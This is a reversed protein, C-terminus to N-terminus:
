AGVGTSEATRSKQGGVLQLSHFVSEVLQLATDIGTRESRDFVILVFGGCQFTSQQLDGSVLKSALEAGAAGAVVLDGRQDAHPETAVAADDGFHQEAKGCCQGFLGFLGSAGDHRPTGVHLVGLRHQECVLEHGM